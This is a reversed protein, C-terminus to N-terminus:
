MARCDGTPPGKSKTWLSGAEHVMSMFLFTVRHSLSLLLLFHTDVQPLQCTCGESSVAVSRNLIINSLDTSVAQTNALNM